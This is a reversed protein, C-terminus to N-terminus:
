DSNLTLLVDQPYVENIIGGTASVVCFEVPTNPDLGLDKYSIKIEIVDKYAYEDHKMLTMKWLGGPIAVNLVPPLLDKKNFAFMIEHSFSNKITPYINGTRSATRVPSLVSQSPTRLYIHIQNKIFHNSKSVTQHNVDFKFYLNESNCGYYIGKISKWKSFTPSDPLFIYGSNEWEDLVGREIGDITPCIYGSVQRLPKGVMSILPINLYDPIPSAFLRYVNRLRERFLYDFIIDSGSENPEGYWWFWDSGQAIFIEDQAQYITQNAQAKQINTKAKSLLEKSFKEFDEKTRNLYNWAVNKTPEGVWLEFSRNIWSGSTIKSLEQPNSKDIFDSVLTTELTNDEEILKYLTSLFEEGDNQYSEWCNEGDMAITLLHNDLPSNQLKNQITKIKEYLDNAAVEGDYSGYGFGILNAFFSDAFIINTKNKDKKLVYNVCLAFPDELNGEFDRAFERGISDSLIGEDLVTWDINFYSLLNMTKKSVCQESLWMGRPRKGFLNEFKDLARSIQEKADKVGGLISNPLNEEYPYSCERINILLPLIAHYYPNTSIEIRGEDQYKKYAPIIDKIIQMQIEYIKQRDKLTFDKEKDLLYDLGEYRYRHRKDIWCLTFNAMIDAYEQNTFCETISPKKANHIRKENLQAYYPRTQLMNSYNVDFFNELIFLKDDKDLDKIDCLLLKLHIDKIGCSYKEISELLVPSIDFNLKINKFDELRLLMDLYDKTAHLRVWPMLFDGKANEQYSPQHFHWVFAIHLKKGMVGVKNLLGYLLMICILFGM